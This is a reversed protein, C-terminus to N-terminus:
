WMRLAAMRAELENDAEADAKVEEQVQQQQGAIAGGSVPGGM